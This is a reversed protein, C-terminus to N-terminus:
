EQMPRSLPNASSRPTMRVTAANRDPCIAYSRPEDSVPSGSCRGCGAPRWWALFQRSEKMAM